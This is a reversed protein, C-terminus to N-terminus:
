PRESALTDDAATRPAETAAQRQEERGALWTFLLLLGVGVDICIDAVNFIPFINQGRHQLDFMDVVFGYRARDYLNGLAGGLLFGLGAMQLWAQEKLRLAYVVIGLAVSSAIGILLWTQGWLSSWAAGFNQTYTLAFYGPVLPISPYHLTMNALVWGKLAQDAALTVLAYGFMSALRPGQLCALALLLAGGVTMWLDALNFLPVLTQGQRQVDFMVVVHDLRLRDMTNGLVGGLLLGFGAMQVWLRKPLRLVHVIVLLPAAAAVGAGLWRHDWLVSGAATQAQGYTLQLHGAWLPVSPYHPTMHTVVWAKLAQDTVLALSAFVFLSVLKLGPHRILDM